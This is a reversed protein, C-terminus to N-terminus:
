RQWCAAPSRTGSQDISLTACSTGSQQDDAQAKGAIATASVTFTTAGANTVAFTYYAAIATGAAPAGLQQATRGTYDDNNARWKELQLQMTLLTAQADARRSKRVSNQYAPLAVTALISVIVVTIILEILTFGQVRRVQM